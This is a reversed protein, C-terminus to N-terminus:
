DAATDAESVICGTTLAKTGEKSQVETPLSMM